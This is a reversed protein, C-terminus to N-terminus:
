SNARDILYEFFGGLADKDDIDPSVERPGRKPISSTANEIIKSFDAEKVDQKPMIDPLAPGGLKLVPLVGTHEYHPVSILVREKTDWGAPIVIFDDTIQPEVPEGAALALWDFGPHDYVLTANHEIAMSRLFAQHTEIDQDFATSAMQQLVKDFNTASIVLRPSPLSKILAMWTELKEPWKQTDALWDLCIIVLSNETEQVPELLRADPLDIAYLGLKARTQGDKEYIQSKFGVIDTPPRLSHTQGGLILVWVNEPRHQKTNEILEKWVM